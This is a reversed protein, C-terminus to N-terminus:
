CFGCCKKIFTHSIGKLYDQHQNELEETLINFSSRESKPSVIGFSTNTYDPSPTMFFVMPINGGENQSPMRFTKIGSLLLRPSTNLEFYKLSFHRSFEKSNPAGTARFVSDFEEKLSLTHKHPSIDNLITTVINEQLTFNAELQPNFKKSFNTDRYIHPTSGHGKVLNELYFEHIFLRYAYLFLYTDINTQSRNKEIPTFIDNDHDKCFLNEVAANKPNRSIFLETVKLKDSSSYLKDLNVTLLDDQKSIKKLFSKPYTHSKIATQSCEPFYCLSNSRYRGLHEKKNLQFLKKWDM